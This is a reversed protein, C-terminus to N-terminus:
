FVYAPGVSLLFWGKVKGDQLVSVGEKLGMRIVLDGGNSVPPESLNQRLNQYSQPSALTNLIWLGGLKMSPTLNWSPGITWVPRAGGLAVGVTLPAWDEGPILLYGDEHKHEILAVSTVDTTDGITGSPLFAAENSISKVFEPDWPFRLYPTGARATGSFALLCVIGAMLRRM